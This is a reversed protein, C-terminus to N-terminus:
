NQQAARRMADTLAEYLADKEPEGVGSDSLAVGFEWRATIDYIVGGDPAAEVINWRDNAAALRKGLETRATEVKERDPDYGWALKTNATNKVNNYYQDSVVENQYNEYTGYKERLNTGSGARDTEFQFRNLATNTNAETDFSELYQEYSGYKNSLDEDMAFGDRSIAGTNIKPTAVPINSAAPAAPAVFPTPNLKVQPTEIQSPNNYDQYVSGSNKFKITIGM